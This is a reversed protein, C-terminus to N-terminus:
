SLGRMSFAGVLVADRPTLLELFIDTPLDASEPAPPTVGPATIIRQEYNVGVAVARGHALTPTGITVGSRMAEFSPLSLKQEETLVRFEGPAFLDEVAHVATAAGGITAGAVQFRRAGSPVNAGFREITRELPAVRQRVQLTGLPHALVDATDIARLTVLTDGGAPLQASWARRDAFATRLLSGVDVREPVAPPRKEGITVDFHFSVDFFLISFSAKGRAHWPQPGSLTLALSVSLITRGGARVALKGAIDVIFGFPALTILADFSLFGAVTFRGSKVSLDVRAGVQVTNSTLALYAELRLRPNDGTALAVAVRSLAPFGTPAAFRPHFGGVALLFTARSGWNMRLAMDGTLAFEALRSDVLTADIAAEERDFDIAGVMDMQLRVIPARGDPLLARLRGLVVLRVPSPVELVLCLDITVIPPSGWVIKAVPGFVHRGAAPPFFGSLNAILQAAHNVPDPPSLVSSLAGTKLGNRLADLSITRNIGILGGVGALLFGLGLPVPTFETSIVILLSFGSSRNPLRTTLLGVAKLTIGFGHLELVGTYQALAEDFFLFGGGSVPGSGIELGFGAPPKFGIDLDLPGLNGGPRQRLRVRAGIGDVVGTIPGISLAVGLGVLADLGPPEGEAPPRFALSIRRIQVPGIRRDAARTIELAAGGIFYAGRRTSFGIGADFTLDLDPVVSRLFGDGNGMRVRLLASKVGAEILLEEPSATDLLMAVRVDIGTVFLGSDGAFSFLTLPDASVDRFLHIALSGSGASGEADIGAVVRPGDGPRGVIGVGGQLDLSGNIGLKWTGLVDLGIEEDLAGTAFPLLALGQDAAGTPPLVVLGLGAEVTAGTTEQSLLPLRLEMPIPEREPDVPRGALTEARHLDAGGLRAPIGLTVALMFLREILQPLSSHETGWGYTRELWGRPDTLLLTLRDLHIARHEHRTTFTEPDAEVEEVEVIGLVRLAELAVVNTSRLQEVVIWDLLRRPLEEVVRSAALFAPDQGAAARSGADALDLSAAAVAAVLVAARLAVTARDPEDVSVADSFKDLAEIVAQVASADIGLAHFGEPVDLGLEDRVFEAFADQSSLMGQLPELAAAVHWTLRELTSSDDEM